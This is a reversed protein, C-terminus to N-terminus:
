GCVLLGWEQFVWGEVARKLIMRGSCCCLLGVRRKPSFNINAGIWIGAIDSDIEVSNVRMYVLKGGYERAQSNLQRRNLLRFKEKASESFMLGNIRCRNEEIEDLLFTFGYQSALNHDPLQGTLSGPYLSQHLVDAVVQNIDPQCLPSSAMHSVKSACSSICLVFVALTLLIKM